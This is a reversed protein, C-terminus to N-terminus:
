KSVLMERIAFPLLEIDEPRKWGSHVAGDVYEKIREAEESTFTFGSLRSTFYNVVACSAENMALGKMEMETPPSGVCVNAGDEADAMKRLWEESHNFQM